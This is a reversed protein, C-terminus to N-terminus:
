FAMCFKNIKTKMDFFVKALAISLFAIRFEMSKNIANKPRERYPSNSFAMLLLDKFCKSPGRAAPRKKQLHHAKASCFGAVLTGPGLPAVWPFV